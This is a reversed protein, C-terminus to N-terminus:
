EGENWINPTKKEGESYFDSHIEKITGDDFYILICDIYEKVDKIRKGIISNWEEGANEIYEPNKEFKKM